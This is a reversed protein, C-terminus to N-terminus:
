AVSSSGAVPEVRQRRGNATFVLFLGILLMPITLWQGMSLGTQEVVHQLHADPERVFEICFRATGYILAAMGFLFGPRYRADTKFFLPWLIAAMLLGEAGAEYLQSPHRPLDGGNPFIIAWKADTVRGWLESNAFNALRVLFLGFPVCCAIYDCMRLFSLGHKRAMLWIAFITGLTGGHLSMGGEWLKFIELPTALMGPQYFLIYGIRGGLIIGLTAYLIMDDAHERSMPSGPKRILKTLLWYGLLIGFLYGLSYWRLEFLGLDLAVPGIGLDTFKLYDGASAAATAIFM